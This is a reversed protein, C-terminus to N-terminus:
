PRLLHRRTATVHEAPTICSGGRAVMRNCGLRADHAAAAPHGPRFGPYAVAPSATWEWCDGFMQWPGSDACPTPQPHLHDSQLFNGDVMRGQAFPEWENERPLRRGSWRAFAEAEHFSVHCVPEAALLPRMGGLTFVLWEGHLRHWYLPARWGGAEVAALGDESWLSPKAYGGDEMFELYEGCTVLRGALRCPEIRDRHRPREHGLASADQGAAGIEVAGGAHAFWKQPIANVVPAPDIARFAPQQPLSWFLHKVDALLQEQHEHEHRIGLTVLAEIEALRKGAAMSLLHLMAANVHERYRAVEAQSPRSLMGRRNAPHCAGRRGKQDFLFGYVDDYPTYGPLYRALICSEFFWTTHALHWKTPSTESASQAMQDEASLSAALGTTGARARQFRRILRDRRPHVTGPGPGPGPIRALTAPSYLDIASVAM